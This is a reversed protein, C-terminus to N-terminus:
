KVLIALALIIFVVIILSLVFKWIYQLWKVYPIDAYTLAMLLIFSTPVFVAAIAAGLHWILTASALDDMYTVILYQSFANGFTPFDICFVYAIMAIFTLAFINFTGKGFLANIFTIPWPCTGLLIVLVYCLGYIFAVKGINKLGSGFNKIFEDISMKSTIAFIITLIVFVFIAFILEAQEGFGDISQGLLSSLIPINDVTAFTIFKNHLETFFTINFSTKWDIYALMTIIIAIISLVIYPWLKIKKRKTLKSEDLEEPCFIDYKGGNASRKYKNMYIIAFLNFLIYAAAFIGIRLPLLMSVKSPLTDLLSNISEMGYTGVTLGITGIFIGGFAASIATLKKCGNRLFVSVIFPIVCFLALIQSSISTYIGMLLTIVLMAIAEKGKILAATKDVLKRYAKTKSLVGYCGGITLIYAVSMMVAQNTFTVYINYLIDYIGLRIIGEDSFVGGKYYGCSIFWSLVVMFLIAISIIIIKDSKKKM